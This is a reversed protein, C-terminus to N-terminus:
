DGRCCELSEVGEIGRRRERDGVVEEGDGIGALPVEGGTEGGAGAIGIGDAAEPGEEPIAIGGQPAKHGPREGIEAGLGMLLGDLHQHTKTGGQVAFGSPKNLVFIDRDEFLVM